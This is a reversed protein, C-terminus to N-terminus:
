RADLMDICRQEYQLMDKKRDKVRKAPSGVYISWPEAMKTLLSNAGLVAGEDLGSGPLFVCGAGAIAHRGIVIKESTVGRCEMQITPNTMYVGTYDDSEAYLIGRASVACFDDLLIGANGAFLACYAAVHVNRGVTLNGTLLCFDDIRCFDGLSIRSAGYISNKRSLQVGKGVHKFGMGALEEDTYYSTTM